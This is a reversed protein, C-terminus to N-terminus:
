RTPMVTDGLSVQGDGGIAVRGKHRVTLITTSRFPTRMATALQQGDITLMAAIDFDL